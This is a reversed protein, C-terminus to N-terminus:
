KVKESRSETVRVTTPPRAKPTTKLDLAVHGDLSTPKSANPLLLNIEFRIVDEYTTQRYTEVQSRNM